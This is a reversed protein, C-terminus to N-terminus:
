EDEDGTIQSILGAVDLRLDLYVVTYRNFFPTRFSSDPAQQPHATNVGVVILTSAMPKFSLGLDYQFMYRTDQPDQPTFSAKPSLSAKYLVSQAVGFSTSLALWPLFGVSLSLTQSLRRSSNRVGMNLFQDCGPEGAPCGPILSQEREATTFQHLYKTFRLSYGLSIGSLWKFQRRLSLGASLATHLTRAQSGPSTPATAEGYASIDVGIGPITVLNAAGVRFLIDSPITEDRQTTGDANTLERTLSFSGSLYLTDGFWWQPSFGWTMAYYPNYTLEAAKDLTLVSVSNRYFIESSRYPPAAGASAFNATAIAIALLVPVVRDVV